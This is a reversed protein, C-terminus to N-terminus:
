ESKSTGTEFNYIMNKMGSKSGLDTISFLINNEDKWKLYTPTQDSVQPAYVKKTMKTTITYVYIGEKPDPVNSKKTENGSDTGGISTGSEWVSWAIHKCDPSWEPGAVSSFHDRDIIVESPMDGCKTFLSASTAIPSSVKSVSKNKYLFYGIIGLVAVLLIILVPTFGKQRM